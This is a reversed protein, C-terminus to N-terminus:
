GVGAPRLMRGHKDPVGAALVIVIDDATMGRTLMDQKLANLSEARRTQHAHHYFGLGLALAGLILGCAFAGVIAVLGLFEDGSLGLVQDSM